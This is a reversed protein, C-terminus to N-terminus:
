VSRLTKDLKQPPYHDELGKAKILEFAQADSFGTKVLAEYKARYMLAWVGQAKIYFDSYDELRSLVKKYFMKREEKEEM